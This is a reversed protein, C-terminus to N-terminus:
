DTVDSCESVAQSNLEFLEAYRKLPACYYRYLLPQAGRRLRYGRRKLATRSVLEIGLPLLLRQVSDADSAGLTRPRGALGAEIIALAYRVRALRTRLAGKTTPAKM